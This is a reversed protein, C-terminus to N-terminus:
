KRYRVSGNPSVVNVGPSEIWGYDQNYFGQTDSPLNYQPVSPFYNPPNPATGYSEVVGFGNFPPYPSVPMEWTNPDWALQMEEPNASDSTTPRGDSIVTRDRDSLSTTYLSDPAIMGAEVSTISIVALLFVNKM